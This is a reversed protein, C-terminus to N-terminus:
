SPMGMSLRMPCGFPGCVCGGEWDSVDGEDIDVLAEGEGKRGEVDRWVFM